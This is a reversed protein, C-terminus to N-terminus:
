CIGPSTLQITTRMVLSVSGLTRQLWLRGKQIHTASLMAMSLLRDELGLGDEIKAFPQMKVTCSEFLSIQREYAEVSTDGLRVLKM